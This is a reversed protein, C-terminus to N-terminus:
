NFSSLCITEFIRSTTKKLADIYNFHVGNHPAPLPHTDPTVFFQKMRLQRSAPFIDFGAAALVRKQNTYTSRGLNSDNYIVLATEVPLKKDEKMKKWLSQGIERVSKEKCRTLLLGLLQSPEIDSNSADELM